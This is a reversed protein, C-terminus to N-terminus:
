EEPPRTKGESVALIANVFRQYGTCRCLNGSVARRVDHETPHPNEELFAKATLLMGPTCYGCQLANFNVFAEQLPHLKGDTAMGEITTIEKGHAEVALILCSNMPKGNVLVTCAGCNGDNCGKKTGTLGLQERLVELLTRRLDVEVDYVSGNVTFQIYQKKPPVIRPTTQQTTM